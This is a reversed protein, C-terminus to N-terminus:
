YTEGETDVIIYDMIFRKRQSGKIDVFRKIHIEFEKNSSAKEISNEKVYDKYDTYVEKMDVRYGPKSELRELFYLEYINSNKKYEQTASDVAEPRKTSSLDNFNNRKLNLYRQWLMFLFYSRWSSIKEKLSLDKPYHNVYKKPDSLKIDDSDVFKSIYPIVCIRRWTGGDTSDIGPIDNCAMNWKAMPKFQIPDKNLHRGTIIDGGTLQKIIDSQLGKNQKPESTMIYRKGKAGAMIPNPANPDRKPTNFITNDPAYYYDGFTEKILDSFISKGNSGSGTHIYFEERRIIGSLSEALLNLVYNQVDEDPFIKDLCEEIEIIIEQAEHNNVDMPFDYGCSITTMDEPLGNRIEGYELDM